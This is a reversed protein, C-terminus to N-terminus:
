DSVSMVAGGLPDAGYLTQEDSGYQFVSQVWCEMDDYIFTFEYLQGVTLPPYIPRSLGTPDMRLAIIGEEVRRQLPPPVAALEEIARPELIVTYSM